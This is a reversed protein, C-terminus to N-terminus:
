IIILEWLGFFNSVPLNAAVLYRIVRPFASQGPILLCALATRHNNENPYPQVDNELSPRLKLFTPRGVLCFLRTRTEEPQFSEKTTPSIREHIITTRSPLYPMGSRKSERTNSNHNTLLFVSWQVFVVFEHATKKVLELWAGFACSPCVLSVNDSRFWSSKLSWHGFADLDM